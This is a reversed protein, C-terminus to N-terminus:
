YAELVLLLDTPSLGRHQLLGKKPLHVEDKDAGQGGSQRPKKSRTGARTHMSVRQASAKEATNKVSQITRLAMNQWIPMPHLLSLHVKTQECIQVRARGKM